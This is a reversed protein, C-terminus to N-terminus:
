PWPLRGDPSAILHLSIWEGEHINIIKKASLSVGFM